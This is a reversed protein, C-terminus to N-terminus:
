ISLSRCTVGLAGMMGGVRGDAIGRSLVYIVDPGPTVILALAAFIYLPLSEM